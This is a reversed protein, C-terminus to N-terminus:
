LTRGGDVTIVNGTVFRILTAIAEVTAAVDEVDPVRKLPTGKVVNEYFGDAINPVFKTALAGPSVGVVRIDPALVRSLNRTLADIGAKASCYAINSGSGANQGAASGINVILGEPSKKMLPVFGRIVTFYSRLNKQVADDFFDDTLIEIREHPIRRTQGHTNVLINCQGAIAIAQKVADNVQSKDNVDALIARHELQSNPLTNLKAQSEELDRRVIGIIRAGRNALRGATAFGIGGMAGTIVAVQGDLNDLPKYTMM